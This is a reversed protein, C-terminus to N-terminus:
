ARKKALISIEKRLERAQQWVDLEEISNIAM